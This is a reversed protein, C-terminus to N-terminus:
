EWDLSRWECATNELHVLEFQQEIQNFLESLKARAGEPMGPSGGSAAPAGAAGPPSTSLANRGSPSKKAKSKKFSM